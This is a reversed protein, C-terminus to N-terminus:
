KQTSVPGDESAHVPPRPHPRQTSRSALPVPSRTSPCPMAPTRVTMMVCGGSPVPVKRQVGGPAERIVDVSGDRRVFHIM